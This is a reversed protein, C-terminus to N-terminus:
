GVDTIDAKAIEILNTKTLSEIYRQKFEEVSVIGVLTQELARKGFLREMLWQLRQTDGYEAAKVIIGAIMAEWGIGSKRIEVLAPIAIKCLERIANNIDALAVENITPITSTIGTNAPNSPLVV